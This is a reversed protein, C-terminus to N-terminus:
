SSAAMDVNDEEDIKFDGDEADMDVDEDPKSVMPSGYKEKEACQEEEEKSFELTQQEDGTVVSMVVDKDGISTSTPMEEDVDGEADADFGQLESDTDGEADADSGVIGKDDIEMEDADSDYGDWADDQNSIFLDKRQESGVDDVQSRVKELDRPNVFYNPEVNGQDTTHKNAQEKSVSLANEQESVAKRPEDSLEELDRLTIFSDSEFDGQKENQRNNEEAHKTIYDLDL